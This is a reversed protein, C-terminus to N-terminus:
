GNVLDDVSDNGLHGFALAGVSCGDGALDLSDEEGAASQGFSSRASEAKASMSENAAAPFENTADVGRSTANIRHALWGTIATAAGRWKKRAAVATGVVEAKAAVGGGAL